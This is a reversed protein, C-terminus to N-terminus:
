ATPHLANPKLAIQWLRGAARTFAIRTAGGERVGAQRAIDAASLPFDRKLIDISKIGRARLRRKLEKPDFPEISEIEHAKGLFDDGPKETAFGYGNDSDIHIGRGTLYRRALRAKQLAVDPFILHTYTEPKFVVGASQAAWVLRRATSPVRLEGSAIRSDAVGGGCSPFVVEGLDIAIARITPAEPSGFRVDAIVEKCEGDLSVVEVSTGSGFVRFM